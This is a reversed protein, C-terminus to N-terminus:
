SSFSRSFLCTKLRNRFVTLTPASTFVPPLSNWLRSGAVPFARDGVTSLRTRRIVLQLSFSSRLHRCNSDAVFQIHDSIGHRWLTCADIFSCLWSSTSANRLGCGTCTGCCRHSMSLGLLRIFDVFSPCLSGQSHQMATISAHCLWHCSWRIVCWTPCQADSAASSDYCRFM